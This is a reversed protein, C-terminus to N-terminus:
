SALDEVDTCDRGMVHALNLNKAEGADTVSSWSGGLNKTADGAPIAGAERARDFELDLYPSRLHNEKGTTEQHAAAAATAM